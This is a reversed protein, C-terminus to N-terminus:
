FVATPQDELIRQFDLMKEHLAALQLSSDQITLLLETSDIKTEIVAKVVIETSRIWYEIDKDAVWTEFAEWILRWM